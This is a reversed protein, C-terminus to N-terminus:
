GIFAQHNFEIEIWEYRFLPVQLALKAGYCPRNHGGCQVLEWFKLANLQSSQHRDVIFATVVALDLSYHDLKVPCLRSRNFPIGYIRRLNDIKRVLFGNRRQKGRRNSSSLTTSRARGAVSLHVRREFKRESPASVTRSTPERKTNNEFSRDIAKDSPLGPGACAGSIGRKEPM